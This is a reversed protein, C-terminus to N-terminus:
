DKRNLHIVFPYDQDYLRLTVEQPKEIYLYAVAVVAADLMLGGFVISVRLPWVSLTETYLVFSGMGLLAFAMSWQRWLFVHVRRM